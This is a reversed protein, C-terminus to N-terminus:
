SYAYPRSHNVADSEEIWQGSNWLFIM